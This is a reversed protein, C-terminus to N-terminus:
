VDYKQDQVSHRWIDLGAVFGFVFGYCAWFAPNTLYDELFMGGLM